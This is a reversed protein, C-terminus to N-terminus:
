MEMAAEEACDLLWSSRKQALFVCPGGWVVQYYGIPSNGGRNNIVDLILHDWHAHQIWWPYLADIEESLSGIQENEQLTDKSYNFSM